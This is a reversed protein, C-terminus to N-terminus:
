RSARLWTELNPTSFGNKRPLTKNKNNRLNLLIEILKCRNAPYCM